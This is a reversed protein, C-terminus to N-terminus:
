FQSDGNGERPSITLVGGPLVLLDFFTSATKGNRSRTGHEIWHHRKITFVTISIRAM